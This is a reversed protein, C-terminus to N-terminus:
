IMHCCVSNSPRVTDVSAAAVSSPVRAAHGTSGSVASSAAAVNGGVTYYLSYNVSPFLICGNVMMMVKLKRKVPWNQQTVGAEVTGCFQLNSITKDPSELATSLTQKM